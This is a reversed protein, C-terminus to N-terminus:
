TVKESTDSGLDNAILRFQELAAELDDVIDQAIVYPYSRHCITGSVKEKGHHGHFRPYSMRVGKITGMGDDRLVDCDNEVQRDVM